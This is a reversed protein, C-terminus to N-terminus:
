KTQLLPGCRAIAAICGLLLLSLFFMIGRHCVHGLAVGSTVSCWKTAKHGRGKGRVIIKTTVFLMKVKLHFAVIYIAKARGLLWMHFTEEWTQVQYVNREQYAVAMCVSPCIAILHRVLTSLVASLASMVWNCAALWWRSNLWMVSPRTSHLFHVIQACIASGKLGFVTNHANWV